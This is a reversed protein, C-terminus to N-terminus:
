ESVEEDEIVENVHRVIDKFGESIFPLYTNKVKNASLAWKMNQAGNSNWSHIVVPTVKNKTEHIMKAVTHGTNFMNSDVFVEGGLDHDLFVIDYKNEHLLEMGKEALDTIDLNDTDLNAKFWVIREPDDELIFIRM